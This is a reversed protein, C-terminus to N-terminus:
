PNKTQVKYTSSSHRTWMESLFM